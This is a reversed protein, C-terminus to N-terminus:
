KVASVGDVVTNTAKELNKLAADDKKIQSEVEQLSTTLGSTKGEIQIPIGTITGAM